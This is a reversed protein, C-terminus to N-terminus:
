AVKLFDNIIQKEKIWGVFGVTIDRGLNQAYIIIPKYFLLGAQKFEEQRDLFRDGEYGRIKVISKKFAKRLNNSCGTYSSPLDDGKGAEIIEKIVKGGKSMYKGMEAKLSKRPREVRTAAQCTVPRGLLNGLLREWLSRVEGKSIAWQKAYRHKKGVMTLHLHPAVVGSDRYRDEQIETVWVMASPFGRRELIRKLEQVFKRVLDSWNACILQLDALNAFAPLTATLFSLCHKGYKDELLYCAETVLRRGYTTIGKSGRKRCKQGKKRGGKHCNIADSLGMLPDDALDDPFADKVLDPDVDPVLDPNNMLTQAYRDGFFKARDHEGAKEFDLAIRELKAPDPVYEPQRSPISVKTVGYFTKHSAIGELPQYQSDVKPPQSHGITYGGSPYFTVVTNSNLRPKFKAVSAM